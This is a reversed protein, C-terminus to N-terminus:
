VARHKGRRSWKSWGPQDDGLDGQSVGAHALAGALHFAGQSRVRGEQSDPGTTNVGEGTEAHVALTAGAWDGEAEGRGGTRPEGASRTGISSDSKWRRM